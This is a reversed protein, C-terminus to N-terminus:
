ADIDAAAVNYGTRLFEKVLCLGIGQAGGTIVATKKNIAMCDGKFIQITIYKIM